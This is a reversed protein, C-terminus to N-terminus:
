NLNIGRSELTFICFQIKAQEQAKSENYPASFEKVSEKADNLKADADKAAVIEYLNGECTLIRAKIDDENMANVAEVFEPSLRKLLKNPFDKEDQNNAM